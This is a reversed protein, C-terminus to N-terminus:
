NILFQMCVVINVIKDNVLATKHHNIIEYSFLERLHKPAKYISFLNIMIMAFLYLYIWDSISRWTPLISDYQNASDTLESIKSKQPCAVSATEEFKM